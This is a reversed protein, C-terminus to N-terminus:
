YSLESYAIIRIPQASFAMDIADCSYSIRFPNSDSDSTRVDVTSGSQLLLAGNIFGNAGTDLRFEGTPPLVMVIGTWNFTAADIRLNNPVVLVGYGTVNAQIELTNSSAVVIAPNTPSGYTTPTTINSSTVNFYNPQGVSAAVLANVANIQNGVLQPAGQTIIPDATNGPAGVFPATPNPLLTMIPIHPAFVGSVANLEQAGLNLNNVCNAASGAACNPNTDDFRPTPDTGRVWWLGPTCVKGAQSTGDPNCFDNARKAINRRLDTLAQELQTTSQAADSAMSAVSRCSSNSAILNGNIDHVRGDIGTPPISVGTGNSGNNFSPASNPSDMSLVGLPRIGNRAVEYRSMRRAGKIGTTVALSTLMYVQQMGNADCEPTTTGPTLWEQKGDWCVRTDLPVTTGTQDVFYPGAIRNTKMNVRVWKYSLPSGLAPAIGAQDTMKWNAVSGALTSFSTTPCKQGTGIGSNYAHCYEDDFYTGASTPDVTEGAAPNLVYAVGNAQGPVAIPLLTGLGGTAPNTSRIRDRVEELGARAGYYAGVSERYNSGINTETNTSFMMLLGIASLLLLSFMALLLATGNQRKKGTLRM